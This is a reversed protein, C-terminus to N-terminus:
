RSITFLIGRSGGLFGLGLGCTVSELNERISKPGLARPPVTATAATSTLLTPGARREQVQRVIARGRRLGEVSSATSKAKEFSKHRSPFTLFCRGSAVVWLSLRERHLGSGVCGAHHHILTTVSLLYWESVEEVRAYCREELFGHRLTEFNLLNKCHV